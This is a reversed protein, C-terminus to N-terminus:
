TSTWRPAPATATPGPSPPAEPSLHLHVQPVVSAGEGAASAVRLQHGQAVLKKATEPTAAVRTEGSTTEAPVGIQM